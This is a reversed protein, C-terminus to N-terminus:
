KGETVSTAKRPGARILSTQQLLPGMNETRRDPAAVRPFDKGMFRLKEM